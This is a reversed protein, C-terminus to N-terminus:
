VSQCSWAKCDEFCINRRFIHRHIYRVNTRQLSEYLCQYEHYGYYMSVNFVIAVLVNCVGDGDSKVTKFRGVERCHRLWNKPIKGAWLWKSTLYTPKERMTLSLTAITVSQLNTVDSLILFNKLFTGLCLIYENNMFTIHVWVLIQGYKM